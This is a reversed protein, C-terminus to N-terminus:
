SVATIAPATPKRRACKAKLAAPMPQTVEDASTPEIRPTETAPTMASPTPRLFVSKSEAASKRADATPVASGSAKAVNTVNRIRPPAPTPIAEIVAGIYMASTAGARMLPRM